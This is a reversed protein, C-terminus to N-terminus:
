LHLSLPPSISLEQSLDMIGEPEVPQVRRVVTPEDTSMPQSGKSTSTSSFWYPTPQRSPIRPTSVAPPSFSEATSLPRFPTDSIDLNPVM